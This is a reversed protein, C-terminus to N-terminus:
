DLLISEFGLLTDWSGHYQWGIRCIDQAICSFGFVSPQEEGVELTAWDNSDRCTNIWDIKGCALGVGCLSNDPIMNNQETRGPTNRKSIGADRM